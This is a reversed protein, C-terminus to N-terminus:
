FEVNKHSFKTTFGGIKPSQHIWCAERPIFYFGFSDKERYKEKV